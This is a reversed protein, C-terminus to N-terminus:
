LREGSGFYGLQSLAPHLLVDRSTEEYRLFHLGCVLLEASEKLHDVQLPHKASRMRTGERMGAAPASLKSSANRLRSSLNVKRSDSIAAGVAHDVGEAPFSNNSRKIINERGCVDEQHKEFPQGCTFHHIV